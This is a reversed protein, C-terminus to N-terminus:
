GRETDGLKDGLARKTLTCFFITGHIKRLVIVDLYLEVM